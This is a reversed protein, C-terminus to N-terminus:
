GTLWFNHSASTGGLDEGAKHPMSLQCNRRWKVGNAVSMVAPHATQGTAMLGGPGM